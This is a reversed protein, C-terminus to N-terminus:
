NLIKVLEEQSNGNYGEMNGYQYPLTDGNVEQTKNSIKKLQCLINHWPTPKGWMTRTPAWVGLLGKVHLDETLQAPDQQQQQQQQKAM